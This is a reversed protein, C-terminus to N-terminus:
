MGLITWGSEFVFIEDPAVVHVLVAQHEDIAALRIPQVAHDICPSRQLFLDGQEPMPHKGRAIRLQVLRLRDEVLDIHEATVSQATEM